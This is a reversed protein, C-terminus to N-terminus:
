GQWMNQGTSDQLTQVRNTKAFMWRTTKPSPRTYLHMQLNFAQLPRRCEKSTYLVIHVCLYSALSSNKPLHMALKFQHAALRRQDFVPLM